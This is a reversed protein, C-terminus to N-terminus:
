HSEPKINQLASRAANYRDICVNLEVIATDGDRGISLIREAFAPDLETRAQTDATAAPANAIAAAVCGRTPVSLRERGSRIDAIRRDFEAQAHAHVEALQKASEDASETLKREATNVRGALNDREKAIEALQRAHAINDRAAEFDKRWGNVTWGAGFGIAVCLAAIAPLAPKGLLM